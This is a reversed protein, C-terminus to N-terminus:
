PVKKRDECAQPQERKNYEPFEAPPSEGGDQRLPFFSSFFPDLPRQMIRQCLEWVSRQYPVSDLLCLGSGLSVTGADGYEENVEVIEFGHVVLVAMKDTILEQDGGALSKTLVQAGAIGGPTQTSIFENDHQFDLPHVIRDHGYRLAQSARQM